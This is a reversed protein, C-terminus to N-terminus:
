FWYLQWLYNAVLQAIVMGLVAFLWGLVRLMRAKTSRKENRALEVDFFITGKFKM